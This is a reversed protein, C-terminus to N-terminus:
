MEEYLEIKEYKQDPAPRTARGQNACTSTGGGEQWGREKGTYYPWLMGRQLSLLAFLVM